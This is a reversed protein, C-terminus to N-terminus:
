VVVSYNQGRFAYSHSTTFLKRDITVWCQLSWSNLEWGIFVESHLCNQLASLMLNVCV